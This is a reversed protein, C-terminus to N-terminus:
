RELDDHLGVEVPQSNSMFPCYDTTNGAGPIYQRVKHQESVSKVSTSSLIIENSTCSGIFYLIVLIMILLIDMSQHIKRRTMPLSFRLNSLSSQQKM